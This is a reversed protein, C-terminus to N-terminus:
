SLDFPRIFDTIRTDEHTKAALDYYRISFEVHEHIEQVPAEDVVQFSTRLSEHRYILKLLANELRDKHIQGALISVSPINYGLGQKDLRHLVYLRKQASSLAYYEKKEVPVISTYKEAAAEKIYAALGRITPDSFLDTLPVNVNLTQHIQSVLLTAKLSHGGLQFFNDRIGIQEKELALVGAWIGALKEELTNSPPVYGGGTKIGPEPLAKRDIKGSPTLPSKDLRTYYAPVMYAPLYKSLYDTLQSLPINDDPVI